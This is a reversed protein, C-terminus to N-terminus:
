PTELSKGRSITRSQEVLSYNLLHHKHDIPTTRLYLLAMDPDRHTTKAKVLAAKVSKAQNEIFGNSRPYHPYSTVHQFGLERAFDQLAQGSEHPGNDFRVVKPIGQESFIQRLIKILTHSNGQGRPIRRVFPYKSYYDAVVLYESGELTFLDTGITHWARPPM